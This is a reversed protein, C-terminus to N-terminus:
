ALGFKELRYRLQDRTLGLLKAARTRNDQARELAQKILEVELEALEVGGEPLHFHRTEEPASGPMLILALTDRHISASPSLLIAREIINRLERVNGPWPYHQLLDIGSADIEADFRQYQHGIEQCFHQALLPIDSKRERLPPIEFSLVALRHFLDARFDGENVAESLVRNTAAIVHVDIARERTAGLRRVRKEEIVKLFKAQIGQELHGIEDLFIAGGDAAEFLGPRSGVAGTFSGREHGFLEEEVLSSPLGTCNLEIFPGPGLAEHIARAMLGKGTGTEGTLLITPRRAPALEVSALNAIQAFIAKVRADEGIIRASESAARMRHYALERESRGRALSLNITLRLEELDLPKQLYDSAGRRMAEVADSISGHATMMLVILGPARARMANLLDLGSQDPLRLDVLALDPEATTLAELAEQGSTALAIEHGASTLANRLQRGLIVEDEVVVISAM